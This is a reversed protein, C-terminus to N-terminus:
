RYSRYSALVTMVDRLAILSKGTGQSTMPNGRGKPQRKSRQERDAERALRRLERLGLRESRVVLKNRLNMIRDHVTSM